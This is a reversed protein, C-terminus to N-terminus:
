LLNSRDRILRAPLEYSGAKKVGSVSCKHIAQGSPTQRDHVSLEGGVGLSTDTWKALTSLVRNM